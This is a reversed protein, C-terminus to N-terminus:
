SYARQPTAVCSRKCGLRLDVRVVCSELINSRRQVTDQPFYLEEAIVMHGRIGGDSRQRKAISCIQFRDRTTHQANETCM